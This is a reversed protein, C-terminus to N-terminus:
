NSTRTRSTEQTLEIARQQLGNEAVVTWLERAFRHKKPELIVVAQQMKDMCSFGCLIRKDFQKIALEAIATELQAPESGHM